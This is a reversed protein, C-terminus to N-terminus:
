YCPLFLCSMVMDHIFFNNNINTNYRGVLFPLVTKDVSFCAGGM